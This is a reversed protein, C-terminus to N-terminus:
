SWMLNPVRGTIVTEAVTVSVTIVSHCENMPSLCSVTVSFNITIRHLTQNIGGSIFSSETKAAVATLPVIRVPIKPGKGSFYYSGMANGLPIGYEAEESAVSEYILNSLETELLSMKFGDITVSSIKGENDTTFSAFDKYNLGNEAIYENVTENVKVTIEAKVATDAYNRCATKYNKGLLVSIMLMLLGSVALIVATCKKLLKLKNVWINYEVYDLSNRYSEAIFVFIEVDSIEFINITM